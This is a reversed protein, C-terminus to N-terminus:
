RFAAGAGREGAEVLHLEVDEVGAGLGAQPFLDLAQAGHGLDADGLEAGAAAVAEEPLLIDDLGQM